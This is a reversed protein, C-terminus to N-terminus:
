FLASVYVIPGYRVANYVGRLDDDRGELRTSYYNFGAGLRVIPGFKRELRVAGFFMSGEYRDVELAFVQADGSLTWHEGLALNLYAGLTPLPVEVSIRETQAPSDVSLGSEFKTYHIGFLVGFEKQEDRLLSYGYQLRFTESEQRTTVESGAPFTSDGFDVDQDLITSANRSLRFYSAEMRHFYALRFVTDFQVVTERAPVGLVDEVDIDDGLSGDPGQRRITSNVTSNFAGLRIEVSQRRGASADYGRSRFINANYALGVNASWVQDRDVIPSATISSDLFEVGLKTTLLWGAGIRYGLRFILSSNLASGPEYEPRMPTSEIPSVGYYYDAYENSLYAFEISPVIYGWDYERPLSFGLESTIGDHRGLTEVFAKLGVHIPFGRYGITPGAEITWRRDELGIIDDNDTGGLGLGQVRAVVSYEWESDTVYRFGFEGDRIVFANKNFAPHRLQTLYPLVLWSGSAGAFPNQSVSTIAGLAYDNLDVRRASELWEQAGATSSLALLLWLTRLGPFKVAVGTDRSAM